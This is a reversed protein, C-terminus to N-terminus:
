KKLAALLHVIKKSSNPQNNVNMPGFIQLGLHLDCTYFIIM